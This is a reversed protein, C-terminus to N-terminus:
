VEGRDDSGGGGQLYFVTCFDSWAVSLFQYIDCTFNVRSWVMFLSILNYLYLKVREKGKTSSPISTWRSERAAKDGPFVRYGNDLHCQPGGHGEPRTRFIEGGLRSEIGAGDLEYRIAIGDLGERGV